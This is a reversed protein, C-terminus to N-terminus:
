VSPMVTKLERSLHVDLVDLNAHVIVSDPTRQYRKEKGLSRPGAERNISWKEM